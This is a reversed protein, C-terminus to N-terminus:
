PKDRQCRICNKGPLYVCGGCKPCKGAPRQAQPDTYLISSITKM